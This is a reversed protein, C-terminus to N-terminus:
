EDSGPSAGRGDTRSSGDRLAQRGHRALVDQLASAHVPKSIYADMGAEYCARRDEPLVGATMAIIKPQDEAPLRRRIERTADLGDMEPMQVDMFILDYPTDLAAAVATVGDIALDPEYGMRRLIARAVKQNIVSDDALLIRLPLREALQQDLRLSRTKRHATEAPAGLTEVLADYLQSVKAPRPLSAVQPHGPAPGLVFIAQTSAERVLEDLDLDLGLPDILLIDFPKEGHLWHLAQHASDTLRHSLGWTETHRTLSRGESDPAALVLLRRDSWRPQADGEELGERPATLLVSFTFTSGRGVESEVEIRGGMMNVLRRSIALGLGTGGFRRTTSPDVQSFSDFLTALRDPPIGIGSDRVRIEVEYPQAEGTAGEPSTLFRGSAELVVEGSETFKVANGLLNVLVQRLRTVDGYVPTPPTGNILYTVGLSKEDARGSVIEIAAEICDKLDFASRELELRGSEIKSFDLIDNIVALLTEGSTRITECFDRQDDTLRSDLLLGTMGIVANMPTRIEHSMNALFESKARAAAEAEDRALELKAQAAQRVNVERQLEQTREAVRVELGSRAKELDSDRGEITELMDNFADVLLDVEQAGSTAAARVSYDRDMSVSRATAALRRIPLLEAPLRSALRRRALLWALGLAATAALAFGFLRLWLPRLDALLVIHGQIEGDHEVAHAVALHSFTFRHGTTLDSTRPPSAAPYSAFLGGQSDFLWGGLISPDAQLVDLTTDATRRDGFVLAAASHKAVMEAQVSYAEILENRQSLFQFLALALCAVIAAVLSTGLAIRRLRGELSFPM